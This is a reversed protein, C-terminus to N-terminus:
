GQGDKGRTLIMFLVGGVVLVLIALVAIELVGISM